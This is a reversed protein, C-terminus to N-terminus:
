LIFFHEFFIYMRRCITFYYFLVHIGRNFILISIGGGELHGIGCSVFEARAGLVRGPAPLFYLASLCEGWVKFLLM